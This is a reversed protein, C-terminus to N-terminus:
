GIPGRVPARMRDRLTRALMLVLGIFSLTWAIVAVYIFGQPIVVLHKIGPKSPTTKEWAHFSASHALNEVPAGARRLRDTTRYLM